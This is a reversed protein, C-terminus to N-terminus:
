EGEWTAPGTVARRAKKRKKEELVKIISGIFLKSVLKANKKGAFETLTDHLKVANIITKAKIHSELIQLNDAAYLVVVEKKNGGHKKVKAIFEPADLDKANIVSVRDFNEQLLVEKLLLKILADMAQTQLKLVIILLKM